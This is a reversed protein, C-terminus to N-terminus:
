TKKQGQPEGPLVDGDAVFDLDIHDARFFVHVDGDWKRGDVVDGMLEGVAGRCSGRGRVLRGWSRDVSQRVWVASM